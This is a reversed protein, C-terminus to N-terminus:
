RPEIAIGPDDMYFGTVEGSELTLEFYAGDMSCVFGEYVTGAAAVVKPVEFRELGPRDGIYPGHKDLCAVTDECTTEINKLLTVRYRRGPRADKITM